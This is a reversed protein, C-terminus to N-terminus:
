CARRASARVRLRVTSLETNNTTPIADDGICNILKPWQREPFAFNVRAQDLTQVYEQRLNPSSWM